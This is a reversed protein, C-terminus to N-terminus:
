DFGLICVNLKSAHGISVIRISGDKNRPQSLTLPPLSPSCHSPPPPLSVSFTAVRDMTGGGGLVKHLNQAKSPTVEPQSALYNYIINFWQSLLHNSLINLLIHMPPNQPYM